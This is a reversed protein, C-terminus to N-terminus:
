SNLSNITREDAVGSVLNWIGSKEESDLTGELPLGVRGLVMIFSIYGHGLFSTDEAGICWRIRWPSIDM